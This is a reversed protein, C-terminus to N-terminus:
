SNERGKQFDSLFKELQYNGRYIETMIHIIIDGLDVVVWGDSIDTHLFEEEPKLGNKLYDLLAENHRDGLGTTIVVYDAIYNSGTLDFAEINEGKNEDLITKIKEIRSNM